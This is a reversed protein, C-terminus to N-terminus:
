YSWSLSFGFNLGKTSFGIPASLARGAFLDYAVGQAGGRIGFALGALQKGALQESHRGSLGGYDLGLYAEQGSGGLSIGLDNRVLWGRDASLIRQEDFGRVSFRSGISFRDQPLLSSWAHQARIALTYRLRREAIVFPQNYLAGVQLIQPRTSGEVAENLLPHYGFVSSGRRYGANLDLTASSLVQRHTLGAEFGGLQRRQVQIELDGVFNRSQKAWLSFYAATKSSADRALIRSLKLEQNASEGSYVIASNAGAISQRYHGNSVTAGLLWYRFPLSYHVTNSNTGRPDPAQEFLSRNLSIYFLDNLTLAHDYSLTLGGQYRGTSEFGSNDAYLNIRVPFRQRWQIVVDSYGPRADDGNAPEIRIDADASPLRKLNELAQEITRLNLVDGPQLPMANWITARTPTGEAFRIAHVRGPILQVTLTGQTLDQPGALVRTTIYGRRVLENQLRRIAIGIGIAGTCRDVIADHSGDAAYNASDTIDTFRDSMEGVLAIRQIVICPSEDSPLHSSQTAVSPRLRVDPHSELQQRLQSEREQQRQLQSENLDAATPTQASAAIFSFAACLVGCGPFIRRM